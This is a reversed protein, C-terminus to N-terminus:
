VPSWGPELVRVKRAPVGTALIGPELDGVVMAGGGVVTRDGIRVNGRVSAGIGVFAYSGIHVDSAVSAGPSIQSFDGVATGHELIAGSNILCGRGVRVSVNLIAGPLVVTGVGIQVEHGVYATPHVLAPLELEWGALHEMDQSRRYNNGQGLALYEVGARRLAEPGDPLAVVPIGFITEEPARPTDFFTVLRYDPLSLILDAM